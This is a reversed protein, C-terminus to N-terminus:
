APVPDGPGNVTLCTCAGRNWKCDLMYLTGRYMLSVCTCPGGTWKCDLMHLNGRDMYAGTVLKLVSGRTTRPPNVAEVLRSILTCNKMPHCPVPDITQLPNIGLDGCVPLCALLCALLYCANLSRRVGLEFGFGEASPKGTKSSLLWLRLLCFNPGSRSTLPRYRLTVHVLDETKTCPLSRRGPINGRLKRPM